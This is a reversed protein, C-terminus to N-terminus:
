RFMVHRRLAEIERPLLPCAPYRLFDFWAGMLTFEDWTPPHPLGFIHGLEHMIAGWWERLEDAHTEYKYTKLIPDYGQAQNVGYAVTKLSVISIGKGSLGTVGPRPWLPNDTHSEPRRDDCTADFGIM